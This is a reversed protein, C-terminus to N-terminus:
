LPCSSIELDKRFLEALSPSMISWKWSEHYGSLCQNVHSQCVQNFHGDEFQLIILQQAVIM